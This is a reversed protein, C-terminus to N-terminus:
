LPAPIGIVQVHMEASRSFDVLAQAESVAGSEIKGIWWDRGADDPARHLVNEYLRTVFESATHTAGFRAMFEASHTFSQAVDLLTIGTEMSALWFALGQTDADRGMSAMYLYHLDSQQSSLSDPVTLAMDTFAFKEVSTLTDAGQNGRMDTVRIADGNRTLVFNARVGDFMVTDNGSGGDLADDGAGGALADDGDGGDLRDKGAGGDLKDNGAGGGIQNDEAGGILVDNGDTGKPAANTTGTSGSTGSAGSTGSTGSTGSSGTSGSTDGSGSGTVPALEQIGDAYAIREIGTLTCIGDAGSLQYGTATRTLTYDARLGGVRVTDSGAGGALTDNGGAGDLVDNGRGGQLLNAGSTGTITDNGNGGIANEIQSGFNVTVQGNSTIYMGPAGLHDWHGPDLHLVLDQSANAASITDVGGGDWIFNPTSTSLVYTDNGTRATKSPGYLYHLAALDLPRYEMAVREAASQQGTYSMLSWHRVDEASDLLRGEAYENFPHKIGLAHGLEHLLVQTDAAGNSDPQGPAFDVYVNSGDRRGNPYSAWGQVNLGHNMFALSHSSNADGAMFHLDVVSAVYNLARWALAQEAATFQQYVPQKGAPTLLKDLATPTPFAVDFTRGDGLYSLYDQRLAATDGNNFGAPLLADIWYPVGVPKVTINSDFDTSQKGDGLTWHLAIDGSGAAPRYAISELAADIRAQSADHNFTIALKGGANTVNGIKVGSVYAGGNSFTLQGTAFFLDGSGGGEARSATLTMGDYDGLGGKLAARAADHAAVAITHAPYGQNVEIVSDEPVFTQDLRGQATLRAMVLEAPGGNHASGAVVISGDPQLMLDDIRCQAYGPFDLLAQGQVGFSADLTGDANYRQLVIRSLVLDDLPGTSDTFGVAAYIVAGATLLKGDPLQKMHVLNAVVGQSPHPDNQALAPNFPAAVATVQKGDGSFSTDLTGDPNFRMLAFGTEALGNKQELPGGGGIVIKGDAQIAVAAASGGILQGDVSRLEATAVGNKGFGTDLSGDVNYRIVTYPSNFGGSIVYKGDAQRVTDVALVNDVRAGIGDKGFALDPQGDATLRIPQVTYSSRETIVSSTIFISGDPQLTLDRVDSWENTLGVFTKGGAGFSTDLSGDTNLRTVLIKEEGRGLEVGAMLIKGDPQVEVKSYQGVGRPLWGNIGFSTDLSGDQNFRGVHYGGVAILKGDAQHAVARVGHVYGDKAFDAAYRGGRGDTLTLQQAM